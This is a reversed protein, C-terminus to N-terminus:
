NDYGRLRHAFRDRLHAPLWHIALRPTNLKGAAQLTERQWDSRWKRGKGYSPLHRNIRDHMGARLQRLADGATGGLGDPCTQLWTDPELRLIQCWANVYTGLSIRRGNGLTVARRM